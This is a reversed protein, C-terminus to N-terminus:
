ILPVVKKVRPSPSTIGRVPRARTTVIMSAPIPKPKRARMMPYKGTM